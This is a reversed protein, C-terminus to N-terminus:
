ITPFIQRQKQSEHYYLQHCKYLYRKFYRKQLGPTPLKPTAEETLLQFMNSLEPEFGSALVPALLFGFVTRM